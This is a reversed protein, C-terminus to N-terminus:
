PQGVQAVGERLWDGRLTTGKGVGKSARGEESRGGNRDERIWPIGREPSEGPGGTKRRNSLNVGEVLRGDVAM